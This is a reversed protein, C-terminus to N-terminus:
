AVFLRLAIIVFNSRTFLNVISKLDWLLSFLYGSREAFPFHSLRAESRRAVLRWVSGGPLGLASRFGSGEQSRTSSAPGAWWAGGETPLLGAGDM